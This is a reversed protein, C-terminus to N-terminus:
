WAELLSLSSDEEMLQQVGYYVDTHNVHGSVGIEDFSILIFKDQKYKSLSEQIAKAVIQKDYRQTPHDLIATATTTTEKSNNNDNRIIVKSAGLLAGAKELEKERISGLGDYNGTTLCLFWVTQGQDVLWRVTPLFFMSEDDPHAFVLVYVPKTAAPTEGSALIM